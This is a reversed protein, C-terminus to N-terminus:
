DGVAYAADYSQTAAYIMDADPVSIRYRWPEDHIRGGFNNLWLRADDDSAPILRSAM